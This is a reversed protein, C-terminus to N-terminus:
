AEAEAPKPEGRWDGLMRPRDIAALFDAMGFRAETDLARLAEVVKDGVEDEGFLREVGDAIRSDAAPDLQLVHLGVTVLFEFVEDTTGGLRSALFAVRETQHKDLAIAATTKPTPTKKM